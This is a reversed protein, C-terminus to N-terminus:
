ASAQEKWLRAMLLRAFVRVPIPEQGLGLNCASCLCVMNEEDNIQEDTLGMELGRKVSVVHSAHLDATQEPSRGCFECRCNARMIVVARTRPKMADHITSVSRIAKGTETRPANYQYTACSSCRVVDQTGRETITGTLCGCKGCPGRMVYAIPPLKNM